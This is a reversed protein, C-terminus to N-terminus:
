YGAQDLLQKVQTTADPDKRFKLAWQEPNIYDIIMKVQDEHLKDLFNTGSVSQYLLWPSIKGTTV